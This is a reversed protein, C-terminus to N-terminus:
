FRSLGVKYISTSATWVTESESRMPLMKMEFDTDELCPITLRLNSRAEEYIRTSNTEHEGSASPCSSVRM